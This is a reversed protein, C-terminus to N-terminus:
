KKGAKIAMSNSKILCLNISIGVGLLVWFVPAVSVTSDNFIGAVIYGCFATFCSLGAISRFTTFNEKIYLMFSTVFYIGFLSLMALLSIGGTNVATQLYLSHPKDVFIGGIEYSKLKGIFDYQPFYIPFTDPGYGIFLTNKLLPLTRSWIYGRSSGLLEMGTFGFTEIENDNRYEMWRNYSSLLGEDTFIIDILKYNNNYVIMTGEHSINELKINSFREDEFSIINNDFNFALENNEGDFLKIEGGELLVVQLIGNETVIKARDNNMSIDVIGQLAEDTANRNEVATDKAELSVIRKIRNMVSGGTAYNLIVAGILLVVATSGVIIRHRIITKRMMVAIILVAFLGGAIGARSDCIIWNVVILCSLIALALKQRAKKAWILFIISIPILMAMYSGVYNPNYLTSYVSKPGLAQTFSVETNKPVTISATIDVLDIGLYQLIGTISIIFASCLLGIFLVKISKEEVILNMSLFMIFIYAILVFAGEYREFYGWFATQKYESAIASLLVFLAYTGAPVYYINKDREFPNVKRRFLFVMLGAASLILFLAMKYYSFVDAKYEDGISIIEIDNLKIIKTSIILPILAAILVLIIVQYIDDAPARKVKKGRKKISKHAPM